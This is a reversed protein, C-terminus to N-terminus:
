VATNKPIEIRDAVISLRPGREFSDDESPGRSLASGELSEVDIQKSLVRAAETDGEAIFTALLHEARVWRHGLADARSVASALCNRTRASFSIASKAGASSQELVEPFGLQQVVARARDHGISEPAVYLIAALLHEPAMETDSKIGVTSRAVWLARHLENTYREFM